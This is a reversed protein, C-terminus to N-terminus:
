KKESHSTRYQPHIIRMPPSYVPQIPNSRIPNSHLPTHKARPIYFQHTHYPLTPYPLTLYPLTPNAQTSHHYHFPPPYTHAVKRYASSAPRSSTHKSAQKSSPLSLSLSLDQERVSPPSITMLLLRLLLLLPVISEDQQQKQFQLRCDCTLLHRVSANRREEPNLWTQELPFRTRWM